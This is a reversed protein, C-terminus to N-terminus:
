TISSEHKCSRNASINALGTTCVYKWVNSTSTCSAQLTLFPSRQTFFAPSICRNCAMYPQTARQHKYEIHVQLHILIPLGGWFFCQFSFLLDLLGKYGLPRAIGTCLFEVRGPGPTRLRIWGVCFESSRILCLNLGVGKTEASCM